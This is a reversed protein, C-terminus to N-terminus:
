PACLIRLITAILSHLAAPWTTYPSALASSLAILFPRLLLPFFLFPVLSSLPVLFLPDWRRLMAKKWKPNRTHGRASKAVTAVGFRHRHSRSGREGGGERVAERERRERTGVRRRLAWV